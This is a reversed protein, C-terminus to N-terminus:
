KAFSAHMVPGLLYAQKILENASAWSPWILLPFSVNRFNKDRMDDELM